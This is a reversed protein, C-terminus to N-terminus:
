PRRRVVVIACDDTTGQESWDQVVDWVRDAIAQADAGSREELATALGEVGLLGGSGGGRRAETAGDTVLVLAEGPGLGLAHEAFTAQADIGVPPDPEVDLAHVGDSGVVLPSPHGALVLQLTWERPDICAYALTMFREPPTQRWVARNVLELVARPSTGQLAFARLTHVAMATLSAAEVGKGSVDGCALGVLGSTTTFVDYFDGGVEVGSTASRYVWGVDVDAPLDVATPRLERQLSVVVTRIRQHLTTQHEATAVAQALTALVGGILPPLRDRSYVGIVGKAPPPLAVLHVPHGPWSTEASSAAAEAILPPIMGRALRAAISAPPLTAVHDRVEAPLGVWRALCLAGEEADDTPAPQWLAAGALGMREVLGELLREHVEGPESAEVLRASTEVAGALLRELDRQETLLQANALATGSLTAAIELRELAGDAYGGDAPEGVVLLGLDRGRGGFGAALGSSWGNWSAFPLSGDATDPTWGIGTRGLAVQWLDSAVDAVEFSGPARASDTAARLVFTSRDSAVYLAASRAHTTRAASAVAQEYLASLEPGSAVASTLERLAAREAVREHADGTVDDLVLVAAAVLGGEDLVPDLSLAWWAPQATAVGPLVAEQEIRAREGAEVRTLADALDFPLVEAAPRGVDDPGLGLLRVAAENADAVTACPGVGLLVMPFRLATFGAARLARTDALLGPRGEM